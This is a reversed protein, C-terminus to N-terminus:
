AQTLQATKFFNSILMRMKPIQKRNFTHNWVGEDQDALIKASKFPLHGPYFIWGFTPDVDKARKVGNTDMHYKRGKYTFEVVVHGFFIGNDNWEYGDAHDYVRNAADNLDTDAYDDYDTSVRIKTPYIDQLHKALEVAVVCCGGQNPKKLNTKLKSALERLQALNKDMLDEKPIDLM